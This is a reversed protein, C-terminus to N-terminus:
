NTLYKRQEKIHYTNRSGPTQVISFNNLRKRKTKKNKDDM